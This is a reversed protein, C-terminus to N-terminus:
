PLELRKPKGLDGPVGKDTGNVTINVAGGDSIQLIVKRSAKITQVQDAKMSITKTEGDITADVSVAKFAEIL